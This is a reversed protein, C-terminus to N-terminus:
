FPLRSSPTPRPRSAKSSRKSAPGVPAATSAPVTEPVADLANEVEVVPPPAPAAADAPAALARPPPPLPRAAPAPVNSRGWSHWALGGGFCFVAAALLVPWRRSVVP